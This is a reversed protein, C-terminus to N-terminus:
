DIYMPKWSPDKEVIERIRRIEAMKANIIGKLEALERALREKPSEEPPKPKDAPSAQKREETDVNIYFTESEEESAFSSGNSRM